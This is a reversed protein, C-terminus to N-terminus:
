SHAHGHCADGPLASRVEQPTYNEPPRVTPLGSCHRCSATGRGLLGRGGRGADRRPEVGELFRAARGAVVVRRGHEFLLHEGQEAAAFM